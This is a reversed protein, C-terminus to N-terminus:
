LPRVLNVNLICSLPEIYLMRRKFTFFNFDDRSRHLYCATSSILDFFKEEGTDRSVFYTTESDSDDQAFCVRFNGFVYEFISSFGFIGLLRSSLSGSYVIMLSPARDGTTRFFTKLNHYNQRTITKLKPVFSVACKEVEICFILM